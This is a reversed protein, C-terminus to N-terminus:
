FEGLKQIATRLMDDYGQYLRQTTEFHRTTQMMSVMERLPSVNSSELYGVQLDPTVESSTNEASTPRLMGAVSKTMKTSDAFKVVKIQGISIGEQLIKGTHDIAADAGNLVLNGNLGQVAFGNDSVLQGAGDLRFNGARTYVPGEPSSLEFFGEGTIAIDWQRGTQKIPGNAMDVLSSLSPIDRSHQASTKETSSISMAASFSKGTAISRKYGPTAMNVMNQSIFDMQQIDNHMSQAIASLANTM